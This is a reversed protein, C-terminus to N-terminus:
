KQKRMKTTKKNKSINDVNNVSKKIYDEHQLM